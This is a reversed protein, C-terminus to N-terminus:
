HTARSAENQATSADDPSQRSLALAPARAGQECAHQAAHQAAAAEAAEEDEAVLTLLADCLVRRARAVQLKAGVVRLVGGEAGGGGSDNGGERSLWACVGHDVQSACAVPLV